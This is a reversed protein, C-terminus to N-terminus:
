GVGPGLADVKLPVDEGRTAKLEGEDWGPCTGTGELGGGFPFVV